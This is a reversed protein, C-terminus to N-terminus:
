APPPSQSQSRNRGRKGKGESEKGEAKAEAEEGGSKEAEAEPATAAAIADEKKPEEGVAIECEGFVLEMAGKQREIKVDLSNARIVTGDKVRGALHVSDAEVTGAVEGECHLEKVKLTGAVAGSSSIRMSPAEIEGDVKGMVVVPCRSTMTGKFETGEEVLTQRQKGNSSDSM